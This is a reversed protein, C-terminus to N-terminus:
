VVETIQLTYEKGAEFYCARSTSLTITTGNMAATFQSWYDSAGDANIVDIRGGGGIPYSNVIGQKIRSVEGTGQVDGCYAIVSYHTFVKEFPVTITSTNETPTFTTRTVGGGGAEIAQVASVFGAPFTLQGETGGKTRIADAVTTLDADLQASDVLKDYAM